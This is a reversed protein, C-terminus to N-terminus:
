IEEFMANANDMQKIRDLYRDIDGIIWDYYLSQIQEVSSKDAQELLEKIQKLNDVDDKMAEYFISGNYYKQITNRFLQLENNTSEAIKQVIIEPELWYVASHMLVIGIQSTLGLLNTGWKNANEVAKEYIQKESIGKARKILDDIEKRREQYMEGAKGDPPFHEDELLEIIEPNADSIYEKMSCYVRECEEVMIGYSSLQTIRKLIGTFLETSYKGHKINEGLQNLWKKVESDSAYIWDNILCYPDDNLAGTKEVFQEYRSLVKNVYAREFVGKYILDDIFKFGFVLGAYWNNDKIYQNGYDGEWSPIQKGKMHRVSSHYSYELITKHLTPYYDDIGRFITSVKELFFQFTRLNNHEEKEAIEVFTDIMEILVKKLVVQEKIENEVIAFFTSRLDPEYNITQGIIKEKARQYEENIYFINKQRQQLQEISYEERRDSNDNTSKRLGMGKKIQEDMTPDVDVDVDLRQDLALLMKLEKNKYLQSNGIEEENAVLIVTADSHEVFNNIYGLVEIVDCLCRELDDFIIINNEYSPIKAILEGVTLDEAGIKSLGYKTAASVVVSAIQGYKADVIEGPKGVKDKIAQICLMQSIEDTNKIGYLSLYNVDMGGYKEKIHPILEHQIFHTKGCGWKGNILMAYHYMRSDIFRDISLIIDNM